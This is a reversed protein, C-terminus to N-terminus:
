RANTGHSAARALLRPLRQPGSPQSSWRPLPEARNVLLVHTALCIGALQAFATSSDLWTSNAFSMPLCVVVLALLSWRMSHQMPDQWRRQVAPWTLIGVVLLLALGLAAIGVGYQSATEFLGSHPNVPGGYTDFPAVGSRLDEEFRGPGTGLGLTRWLLYWGNRYLAERQATSGVDPKPESGPTTMVTWALGLIAVVVLPAARRAWTWFAPFQALFWLLLVPSVLQLLRSNTPFCIAPTLCIALAYARRWWGRELAHGVMLMAMASVLFFAFLNPNVMYSAIDTASERIWEAADSRYNWLHKGTAIEWVAPVSTCLWALFWGRTYVRLWDAASDREGGAAGGAVAVVAVATLMGVAVSLLEKAGEGSTERAFGWGLWLCTYTLTWVAVHPLERRRLVILGALGVLALTVVRAVAFPGVRVIPGLSTALPFLFVLLLAARRTM